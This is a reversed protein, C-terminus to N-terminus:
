FAAKQKQIIIHKDVEAVAVAEAVAVPLVEAVQHLHLAAELHIHAVHRVLRHHAAITAQVQVLAAALHAVITARDARVVQHDVTTVLDAAAVAPVAQVQDVTVLDVRVAQRDVTTARDAVLVQDATTARGLQAVRIALAQDAIIALDQRLVEMIVQVHLRVLQRILDTIVQDLRVIAMTARDALATETIAQAHLHDRAVEM